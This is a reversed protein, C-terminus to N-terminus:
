AAVLVDNATIAPKSTLTAFQVAAGQGNGDADYLLAGSTTNYLFYDNADGAVGASSSRFFASDLAGTVSLATFLGKSLEIKDQGPTFDRIGDENFTASLACNFAFLDNGAGGTLTDNGPGGELTDNGADGELIDNGGGGMLTDNGDHGCLYNASDNGTILNDLDNGKGRYVM